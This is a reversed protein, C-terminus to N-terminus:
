SGSAAETAPAFFQSPDIAVFLSTSEAILTDGHHATAAIHLKRDDRGALWARFRLPEEVPAPARFTVSLRGTFAPVKLISLLYGMLDDFVAAVVGGHSRGPAGEFAPGLTVDAVAADGDRHVVIAIGMPNARGSVICDPFHELHEGDETASGFMTSSGDAALALANEAMMTTRNRSAGQELTSVFPEITKILSALVNDDIEHGVFAHGLRRLLGAAQLRTETVGFRELDTDTSTM